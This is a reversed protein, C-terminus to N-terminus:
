QAEGSATQFVDRQPPGGRVKFVEAASFRILTKGNVM